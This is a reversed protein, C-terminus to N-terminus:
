SRARGHAEAAVIMLVEVMISSVHAFSCVRVMEELKPKDGTFLVEPTPTAQFRLSWSRQPEECPGSQFILSLPSYSTPAFSYHFQETM